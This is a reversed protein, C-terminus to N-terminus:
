EAPQNKHTNKPYKATNVALYGLFVWLFRV